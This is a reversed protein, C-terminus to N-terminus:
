QAPAQPFRIIIRTGAGPASHIECHGDLEAARERFNRLGRGSGGAKEAAFFGRGDDRVLLIWSSGNTLAERHLEIWVNQAEAHRLANSLSERVLQLVHIAARPSLSDVDPDLQLHFVLPTARRLRAVLNELATQISKGQWSEPELELVYQRLEALVSQLAMLGRALESDARAPDRGIWTRTQALELGLAYLEQMTNDHLDRSIRAREKMAMELKAQSAKLSQEGQKLGTIETSICLLQPAGDPSRIPVRVALFWHTQGNAHTHREETVTTQGSRIVEFDRDMFERVGSPYVGTEVMRNNAAVIQEPSIGYLEAISRNAVLMRGNEDRVYIKAPDNDLVRQLLGRNAELERQSIRLGESISEEKIRAKVQAVVFGSMLLTFALGGLAVIWPAHRHNNRDFDPTTWFDFHLRSQYLAINTGSNMWSIADPKTQPWLDASEFSTLLIDTNQFGVAIRVGFDPAQKSFRGSFIRRLSVTAIISGRRNDGHPPPKAWKVPIGIPIDREDVPPFLPRLAAMAFSRPKDGATGRVRHALSSEFQNSTGIAFLDRGLFDSHSIPAPGPTGFDGMVLPMVSNTLEMFAPNRAAAPMEPHIRYQGAYKAGWRQLHAPLEEPRVIEAFGCMSVAPFEAKIDVAYLQRYWDLKSLDPDNFARDNLTQLRSVLNEFYTDIDEQIDQTETEFRNRAASNVWSRTASFAAATLGLGVLFLVWAALFRRLLVGSSRAPPGGGLASSSTDEYLFRNTLTQRSQAPLRSAQWHHRFDNQLHSEVGPAM